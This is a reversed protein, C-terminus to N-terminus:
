RSARLPAAVDRAHILSMENVMGEKVQSGGGERGRGAGEELVQQAAANAQMIEWQGTQEIAMM